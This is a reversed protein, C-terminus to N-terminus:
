DEDVQLYQKELYTYLAGYSVLVLSMIIHGYDKLLGFDNM